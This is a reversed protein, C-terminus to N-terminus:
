KCLKIKALRARLAAKRASDGSLPRITNSLGNRGEESLFDYILQEIVQLDGKAAGIVEFKALTDGVIRAGTKAYERIHQSLRTSIANKTRGVYPAQALEDFFIYVGNIIVESAVEQVIVCGTKKIVLRFAGASITSGRGIQNLTAGLEGLNQKGSPDTNDIPDNQTFGCHNLSLPITSIGEFTDRNVFRGINPEMWRARLDYLATTSDQYEGDFLHRNVTSGVQSDTAGFAQYSYRDTVSGSPDTLLRTSWLADGHFFSQAGARM